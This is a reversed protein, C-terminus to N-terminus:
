CAPCKHIHNHVNPTWLIRPIEQSAAFRKAEGSPSQEMSYSSYCHVHLTMYQITQRIITVQLRFM